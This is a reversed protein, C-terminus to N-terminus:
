GQTLRRRLAEANSFEGRTFKRGEIPQGSRGLLIFDTAEAYAIDIDHCVLILSRAPDGMRWRRLLELVKETNAEDLNSFPEDAFVM